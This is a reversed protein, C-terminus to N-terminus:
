ADEWPDGVLVGLLHGAVEDRFTPARAVDGLGLGILLGRLQAVFVELLAPDRLHRRAFERHYARWAPDDMAAAEPRREGCVVGSPM